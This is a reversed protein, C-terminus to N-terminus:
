PTVSSGAAEARLFNWEITNLTVESLLGYVTELEYNEPFDGIVYAATDEIYERDDDTPENFFYASITIRNNQLNAYCAALNATVNGILARQVSWKLFTPDNFKTIM